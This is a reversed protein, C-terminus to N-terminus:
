PNCHFDKKRRQIQPYLFFIAVSLGVGQSAQPFAWILIKEKKKFPNDYVFGGIIKKITLNTDAEPFKSILKTYNWIAINGQTSM